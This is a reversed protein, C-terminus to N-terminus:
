RLYAHLQAEPHGPEGDLDVREEEQGGQGGTGGAPPVRGPEGHPKTHNKSRDQDMLQAMRQREPAKAM